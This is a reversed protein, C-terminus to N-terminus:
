HFTDTFSPFLTLVETCCQAQTLKNCSTSNNGSNNNWLRTQSIFCAYRLARAQKLIDKHWVLKQKCVYMYKNSKKDIKVVNSLFAVNCFEPYIHFSQHYQLFSEFNIAPCAKDTCLLALFFGEKASKNSYKVDESYKRVRYRM